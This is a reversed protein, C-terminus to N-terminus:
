LVLSCCGCGVVGGPGAWSTDSCSGRDTDTGCIRVANCHLDHRIIELERHVVRPDFVPRTSPGGFVRGVDYCVGRLRMRPRTPSLRAGFRTRTATLAPATTPM